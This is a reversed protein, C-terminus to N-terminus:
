LPFYIPAGDDSRTVSMEGITLGNATSQLAAPLDTRIRTYVANENTTLSGRYYLQQFGWASYQGNTIKAKDAASFGGSIPTVGVGNYSLLKAGNSVATRADATSLFTVLFLPIDELVPDQGVEPDYVDVSATTRAMHDRLSSGSAYGGNGNQDLGWLTSANAAGGATALKGPGTGGAPVRVIETIVGATGVGTATAVYQQVTRAVGYGPEALYTSRTGSGDNRGTAFVLTGQDDSSGTFLALPQVGNALLAKWQQNTVNTWNAPAGENAIFTFTVVGVRADAPNLVPSAIPSTSQLVDSFSFKPHVTETPSTKGSNEGAATIAAATLFSPRHEPQVDGLAVARLGETSGNFSTRITTTGSVGPFTGVFVAKNSATLNGAGGDHAVNYATGLAGAANYANQIAQLTATRFATAGTITIETQAHAAASAAALATAGLLINKLKM